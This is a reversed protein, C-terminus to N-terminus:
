ASIPPKRSELNGGENEWDDLEATHAKKENRRKGQLWSALTGVRCAAFLTACRSQINM